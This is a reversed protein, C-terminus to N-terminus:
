YFLNIFITIFSLSLLLSSLLIPDPLFFSPLLPFHHPSILFSHHNLLVKTTIAYVVFHRHSAIAM